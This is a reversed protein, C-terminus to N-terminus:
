VIHLRALYWLEEIVGESADIRCRETYAAQEGYGYDFNMETADRMVRAINKVGEADLMGGATIFDIFLMCHTPSLIERRIFPIRLMGCKRYHANSENVDLTDVYLDRISNLRQKSKKRVKKGSKKTTNIGTSKAQKPKSTVGYFAQECADDVFNSLRLDHKDCYARMKDHIDESIRILGM